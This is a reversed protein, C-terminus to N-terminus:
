VFLGDLQVQLKIIWAAAKEAGRREAVGRPRKGGSGGFARPLPPTAVAAGPLRQSRKQCSINPSPHLHNFFNTTAPQKHHTLSSTSQNKEFPWFIFKYGSNVTRLIM